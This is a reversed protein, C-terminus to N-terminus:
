ADGAAASRTRQGGPTARRQTRGALHRRYDELRTCWAARCERLGATSQQGNALLELLRFTEQASGEILNEALPAVWPNGDKELSEHVSHVLRDIAAM